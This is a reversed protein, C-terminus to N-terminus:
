KSVVLKRMTRSNNSTLEILYIGNDLDLDIHKGSNLNTASIEKVVQGNLAMIRIIGNNTNSTIQIFNSAPNPGFRLDLASAESVGNVVDDTEVIVLDDIYYLGPTMGDGFGFFDIGGIIGDFAVNALYEGGVYIEARDNVPDMRMSLTTWSDQTYTGYALVVQDIGFSVQGSSAFVIDFAWLMGPTLQEQVNMYASNGSPVYINYSVEYATELGIPLYVDMPGGATSGFIKLSQTGSSAQEDSVQADEDTGTVGSWTTWVSSVEGIYDGVTYSDFNEELLPTQGFASSFVLLACPLLFQKM